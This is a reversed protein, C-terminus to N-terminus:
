QCAAQRLVALEQLALDALRAAQAPSQQRSTIHWFYCASCFYAGRPRWAEFRPTHVAAILADLETKYPDKRECAAEAAEEFDM